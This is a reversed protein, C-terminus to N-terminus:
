KLSQYSRIDNGVTYSCFFCTTNQHLSAIQTIIMGRDCNVRKGVIIKADHITGVVAKIMM